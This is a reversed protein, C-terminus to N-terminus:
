KRLSDPSNYLLSSILISERKKRGNSFARVCTRVCVRLGFYFRLFVPGPYTAMEEERARLSRQFERPLFISAVILLVRKCRGTVHFEGGGGLAFFHCQQQRRGVMSDGLPPVFLFNARYTVAGDNM